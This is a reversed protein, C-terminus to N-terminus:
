LPYVTYRLIVFRYVCVCVCKIVVSDCQVSIKLTRTGIAMYTFELPQTRLPSKCSLHLLNPANCQIIYHYQHMGHLLTSMCVKIFGLYAIHAIFCCM